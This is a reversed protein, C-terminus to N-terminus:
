LKTTFMNIEILNIKCALYALIKFTTKFMLNSKKNM